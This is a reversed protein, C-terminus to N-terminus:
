RKWYGVRKGSRDNPLHTAYRDVISLMILQKVVGFRRLYARNRGRCCRGVFRWRLSSGIALPSQGDTTTGRSTSSIATETVSRRRPVRPKEMETVTEDHHFVLDVNRHRNRGAAGRASRKPSAKTAGRHRSTRNPSAKATKHLGSRRKPSAELQKMPAATTETVCERSLKRLSLFLPLM